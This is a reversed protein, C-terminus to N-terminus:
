ALPAHDGEVRKVFIDELSDRVVQVGTLPVAAALAKVAAEIGAGPALELVRRGDAVRVAAVGSVAVLEADTAPSEVELAPRSHEARIADLRGHLIARGRNILCIHDCLEEAQPMVHTSFLVTTGRERMAGIEEKLQRTAIPDLATFPEDLIVMEPEHIVTAAFQLKQQMGKSLEEIRRGAKEALGLRDLWRGARRRAESRALGRVEGLFTLHELVRMRRYLGREEPLYGIRERLEDDIDKGGLVVRGADPLTIRMVIRITTTKGAGNPGLLGFVSGRPVAFSLERVAAVRGFSKSVGHLELHATTM